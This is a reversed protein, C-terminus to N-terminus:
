MFELLVQVPPTVNRLSTFSGSTPWEVTEWGKFDGKRCVELVEHLQMALEKKLQPSPNSIAQNYLTRLKAVEKDLDEESYSKMFGFLGM